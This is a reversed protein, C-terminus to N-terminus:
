SLRRAAETLDRGHYRTLDRQGSIFHRKVKGWLALTELDDASVRLYAAAEESDLWRDPAPEFDAAAITVGGPDNRYKEAARRTIEIADEFSLGPFYESPRPFSRGIREAAERLAAREAFIVGGVPESLWARIGGNAGHTAIRSLVNVSRGIKVAAPFEIVYLGQHVMGQLDIIM